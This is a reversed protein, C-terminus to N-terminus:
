RCRWPLSQLVAPKQFGERCFEVPSGVSAYGLVYADIGARCVSNDAAPAIGSKELVDCM